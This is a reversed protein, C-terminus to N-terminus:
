GFIVNLLFVIVILFFSLDLIIRGAYWESEPVPVTLLEGIGGGSRLGYSLITIFCEFLSFCLLGEEPDFSQRFYVFGIVSYIYIIIVGLVVTKSLSSWNMTVSAVVGQLVEDRYLYDLLHICYLSPYWLGLIALIVMFAHYLAKPEDFFGIVLERPTLVESQLGAITQAEETQEDSSIFRSREKKLRENEAIRRTVRKRNILLPLQIIFFEASSLCWLVIQALGLTIRGHDVWEPCKSFDDHEAHGTPAIMCMMNGVNILMTLIYAGWWWWGYGRALMRLYPNDAVSAQNKIEYIIDGSQNIFDEIKDQATDRKRMWLFRAKSDDRMHTCIEPIPFIVTYLRKVHSNVTERVIEIRGIRERFSCFALNEECKVRDTDAMYPLLTYLLMTYLFSTNSLAEEYEEQKDNAKTAEPDEKEDITATRDKQKDPETSDKKATAPEKDSKRQLELHLSSLHGLMSHIDLTKAMEKFVFRTDEDTDDELLSLLGLTAQGRIRLVHDKDCKEFEEVLIHNITQVIKAAFITVQNRTCGQALDIITDFVQIILPMIQNDAMPVVAHLYDVTSKVLDFTKINDPQVRMYEQIRYNHGEVILQLLRMISRIISYEGDEKGGSGAVGPDEEQVLLGINAIQTTKSRTAMATFSGLSENDARMQHIQASGQRSLPVSSARKLNTAFDNISGSKRFRKGVSSKNRRKEEQLKLEKAEYLEMIAQRVKEHICYFFREERTGLWYNELDTQVQKNGGDLLVILLRLSASIVGERESTLLREAMLTCGLKNMMNQVAVKQKELKVWKDPDTQRDCDEVQLISEKVLFELIRLTKIDYIEDSQSALANDDAMASGEDVGGSTSQKVQRRRTRLFDSGGAQKTSQELYQILSKTPANRLLAEDMSLKKDRDTVIQFKKALEEFEADRLKKTSPDAAVLSIIEQLALNLNEVENNEMFSTTAAYRTKHMESPTMYGSQLGGGIEGLLSEYASDNQLSSHGDFGGHKLAEICVILRRLKQHNGSGDAKITPILLVLNDIISQAIDVHAESTVRLIQCYNRFFHQNFICFGQFIFDLIEPSVTANHKIKEAAERILVSSSELFKWVRPDNEMDDTVKEQNDTEGFSTLYASVLFRALSKKLRLTAHNSILMNLTDDYSLITQCMSQLMSNEGECCLALTDFLEGFYEMAGAEPVRHDTSSLRRPQRMMSGRRSQITLTNVRRLGAPSAVPEEPSQDAEIGHDVKFLKLLPEVNVTTKRRELILKVVINQNRKLIKGEPKIIKRLLELYEPRKGGSMQLIRRLQDESMHMCLNVNQHLLNGLHMVCTKTIVPDAGSRGPHTAELLLDFNSFFMNQHEKNQNCYYFIFEFSRLLLESQASPGTHQFFAASPSTSHSLIDSSDNIDQSGFSRDSDRSRSRVMSLPSSARKIAAKSAAAVSHNVRNRIMDIVWKLVGLNRLSWQNIRDPEPIQDQAVNARVVKDELQDGTTESGLICLQAFDELVKAIGEAVKVDIGGLIMDPPHDVINSSGIGNEVFIVVQEKIWNYSDEHVKDSTILSTKLLQFMEEVSSHLRHLIRVASKRLRNSEYRLLDLLIPTLKDNLQFYGTGKIIGEILTQVDSFGLALDLEKIKVLTKTRGGDPKFYRHWYHLFFYVRIELRLRLLLEMIACIEIKANIIPRNFENSEFREAIFWPDKNMEEPSVQPLRELMDEDRLDTKGDLIKTLNVFLAKIGEVDSFFGYQVLYRLLMVQTETSKLKFLHHPTKLDDELCDVVSGFFTKAIFEQHSPIAKGNCHCLAILFNVYSANRDRVLLDIFKQIQGEGISQVISANGEILQMLTDAAGVHFDLHSSLTDFERAVHMQNKPDSGLLFQKLMRYIYRFVEALEPHGHQRMGDATAVMEPEFIPDLGAPESKFNFTQQGGDPSQVSLPVSFDETSIRIPQRGDSASSSSDKTSSLLNAIATRAAIRKEVDFSADLFHMFTEIISTERLLSQHLIVPAGERKFPDLNSSRTSFYILATLIMRINKSEQPSIFPTEIGPTIPRPKLVFDTVWPVLSNVFNFKDVLEPEAVSISFYDELHVETSAVIQFRNVESNQLKLAQTVGLMSNQRGRPEMKFSETAHLWSGSALHKVRMYSGLNVYQGEPNVQSLVFLTPDEVSDVPKKPVLDTAYATHGSLTVMDHDHRVSLYLNTAAHRLRIPRNWEVAEGNYSNAFEIQWLILCSNMDQPNLPDFQYDLLQVKEPDTYESEMNTAALSLLSPCTLYGEREKHYLRIYRGALISRNSGGSSNTANGTVMNVTSLGGLGMAPNVSSFSRFLRLTWGHPNLSSAAEHIERNVSELLQARKAVNLHGENILSKLVIADGIRVPEGEARIRFKPLIRFLCEKKMYREMDMAMSTPEGACTVRPNVCMYRKTHLNFLQVVSGYVVTQGRLRLLESENTKNELIAAQRLEEIRASDAGPRSAHHRQLVNLQFLDGDVDQDQEVITRFSRNERYGLQPDLRFVCKMLDGDTASRPSWQPMVYTKKKIPGDAFLLGNTESVLMLEDGLVLFRDQKKVGTTSSTPTHLLSTSAHSTDLTSANHTPIALNMVSGGVKSQLPTSPNM